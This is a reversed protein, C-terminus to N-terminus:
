DVFREKDGEVLPYGSIAAFYRLEEAGSTLMGHDLLSEMEEESIKEDSCEEALIRNFRNWCEQWNILNM